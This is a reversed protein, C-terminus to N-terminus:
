NERFWVQYDSRARRFPFEGANVPPESTFERDVLACKHVYIEGYQGFYGDFKPNQDNGGRANRTAETLALVERRGKSGVGWWDIQIRPFAMQSRGKLHYHQPFDIVTYTGHPYAAEQPAVEPYFRFGIGQGVIATIEPTAKLFGVIFEEITM